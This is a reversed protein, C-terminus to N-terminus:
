LEYLEDLYARAECPLMDQTNTIILDVSEPALVDWRSTVVDVQLKVLCAHAPASREWM